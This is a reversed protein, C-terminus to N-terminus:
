KPYGAPIYPSSTSSYYPVPPYSDPQGSYPYGGAQPPYFSSGPPGYEAPHGSGAGPYVGHASSDSPPYGAPPYGSNNYEYESAPPTSSGHPPPYGAPPYGGPPPYNGPRTDNSSAPPSYGPYAHQSEGPYKKPPPVYGDYPSADGGYGSVGMASIGATVQDLNSVSGHGPRQSPVSAYMAGGASVPPYRASGPRSIGGPGSDYPSPRYPGAFDSPATPPYSSSPPYGAGHSSGNPPPYASTTSEIGAYSSLRDYNVPGATHPYVGAPYAGGQGPKVSGDADSPYAPRTSGTKSPESVWAGVGSGYPPAVSETKTSNSNKFYGNPGTLPDHKQTPVPEPQRYPGPHTRSSYPGHSSGSYVSGPVSGAVSGGPTGGPSAGPKKKPTFTLSLKIEGHARGSPRVVNYSTTPLKYEAFVRSLPVTTSGIEDDETLINHNLIKVNLETISDDIYFSFKQNWVPKSGQNTAVNSRLTQRGCKLVAYPDAKGFIETDKIGTAGILLVEVTGAPM